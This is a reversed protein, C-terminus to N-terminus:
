LNLIEIAKNAVETNLGDNYPNTKIFFPLQHEEMDTDDDLIVYRTVYPHKSLWDDIEKGSCLTTNYKYSLSPTIDFIKHYLGIHKFINQM